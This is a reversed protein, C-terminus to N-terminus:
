LRPFVKEFVEKEHSMVVWDRIALDVSYNNRENNDWFEMDIVDYRACFHIMNGLQIPFSETDISFVFIDSVITQRLYLSRSYEAAVESVTKWDDRSFRVIVEKRFALNRVKM